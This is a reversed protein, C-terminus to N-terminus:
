VCCSCPCCCCLVAGGGSVGALDTADLAETTIVPADPVYLVLEGRESSKLWLQVQTDLAAGPTDMEMLPVVAREIRITVSAPIELGEQALVDHPSAILRQLYLDDSWSSVLLRTYTRIFNQREAEFRGM